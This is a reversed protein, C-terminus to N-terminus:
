NNINLSIDISDLICMLINKNQKTKKKFSFHANKDIKSFALLHLYLNLRKTSKFEAGM